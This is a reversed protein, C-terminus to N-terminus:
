GRAIPRAPDACWESWSGPYLASGTLGAHEMALLNHCATVGSGCQHVCATPEGFPAFAGRLDHPSRFRGDAQLNDKHFRNRAGPIHGAVPDFPETEGRFREGARADVVTVRGLLGLLRDADVTPMTTTSLPYPTSEDHLAPVTTELTGGAALWAARGGDLVAVEDHGIWRLMWWARAAYSAGQDDYCVVPVDPRVGWRAATAAFAERTPLPHRGNRGSKAASLDRDLDARQAGPLHGQAYVRTGAQTDVLDFGCDLLVCPKGAQLLTRLADASILTREIM